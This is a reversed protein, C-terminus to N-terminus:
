FNIQTRLSVVTEKDASPATGSTAIDVAQFARGFKTTSYNLMVRANPNLFWNLGLTMTNGTESGKRDSAAGYLETADYQSFRVGVQWAGWGDSGPVYNQKIKLSGFTGNSYNESWKEGTLNYVLGIYGATASGSITTDLYNRSSLNARLVEAQFKLADYALAVEGGLVNRSIETTSPSLASPAAPGAAGEQRVRFVNAMGRPESRLGLLVSTTGTGTGTSSTTPVVTSTGAFGAMGVHMVYDSKGLIKAFDAAIRAAGEAGGRADVNNFDNSYISTGYYYGDAPAGHLMIGLKKGPAFQNVYSREMFDINNSSTQEEFNFPQKFRGVRVQAAKNYGYNIFATDILNANSGVANTVVEYGIDKFITGNIGIRARRIEFADSLTAGDRDTSFGDGFDSTVVRSDFHVRGTLNVTFNKDKSEIGTGSQRVAGDNQRKQIDKISTSVDKDIRADKFAKNEDADKNAEMFENYDKQTIVGKKLMLDLMAKTDNAVAPMSLSACVAAVAIAIQKATLTTTTKKM